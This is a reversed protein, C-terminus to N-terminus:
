STSCRMRLASTLPEFGKHPVMENKGDSVCRVIATTMHFPVDSRSSGHLRQKAQTNSQGAQIQYQFRRQRITM